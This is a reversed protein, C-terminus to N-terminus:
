LGLLIHYNETFIMQPYGSSNDTHLPLVLDFPYIYMYTYIYVGM